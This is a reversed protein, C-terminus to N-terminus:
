AFRSSRGSAEDSLTSSWRPPTVRSPRVLQEALSADSRLLDTFLRVLEPDFMLGAQRELEELAWSVDRARRYPRDHTIADFSDAIRVIRAEFPIAAGHLGDPYGAGNFDEHHWRAIRRAMEFGDGHELIHEGWVPHMRMVQWEEETLSGPKLLIRDPVHLKGVDHLMAAWGIDGALDKDMGSALAIREAVLQCRLVHDGTDSDKAEAGRALAVMADRERRAVTIAATRWGTVALRAHEFLYGTLTGVSLYVGARVLGSAFNEDATGTVLRWPVPGLFSCVVLATILGGRLGFLYAAMLIPLYGLHNFSSLAGGNFRTATSTIMLLVLVVAIGAIRGQRTGGKLRGDARLMLVAAPRGIV